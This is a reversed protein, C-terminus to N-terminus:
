STRPIVLTILFNFYKAHQEKGIVLMFSFLEIVIEIQPEPRLDIFIRQVAPIYYLFKFIESSLIIVTRLNM